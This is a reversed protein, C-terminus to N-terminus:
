LGKKESVPKIDQMIKKYDADKKADIAKQKKNEYRREIEKLQKRAKLETNAARAVGAGTRLVDGVNINVGKINVNADLNELVRQGFTSGKQKINSSSLSSLIPPNTRQTGTSTKTGQSAKPINVSAGANNYKVGEGMSPGVDKNFYASPGQPNAYSSSGSMSPKNKNVSYDVEPQQGAEQIKEQIKRVGSSAANVGVDQAKQKVFDLSKDFDQGTVNSIKDAGKRALNEAKMGVNKVKEGFSMSKRAQKLGEKGAKKISKKLAKDAATKTAKGGLKGAAKKGGAKVLAKGGAKLGLKGGIAAAKGALAKGALVLGTIISIPESAGYNHMPTNKSQKYPM